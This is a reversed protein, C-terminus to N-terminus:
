GSIKTMTPMGNSDIVVSFVLTSTESVIATLTFEGTSSTVFMANGEDNTVADM